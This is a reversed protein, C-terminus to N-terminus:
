VNPSCTASNPSATTTWASGSPPSTRTSRTASGPRQRTARSAAVALRVIPKALATPLVERIEAVTADTMRRDGLQEIRYRLHDWFAAHRLLKRWADAAEDWLPDASRPTGSREHRLADAHVRVAVTHTVHVSVPCGCSNQREGHWVGFIEHALRHREDRLEDIAALAAVAREDGTAARTTLRQRQERIARADAHTALGTLRFANRSYMEPGALELLYAAVEHM